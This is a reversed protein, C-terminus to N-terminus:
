MFSHLHSKEFLIKKSPIYTEYHPSNDNSVKGTLKCASKNIKWSVTSYFKDATKFKVVFRDM